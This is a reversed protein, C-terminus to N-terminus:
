PTQFFVRKGALANFFIAMSFFISYLVKFTSYDIKKEIPIKKLAKALFWAKSL